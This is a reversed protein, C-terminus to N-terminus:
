SVNVNRRILAKYFIVNVAMTMLIILIAIVSGVSYKGGQIVDFMVLTAVKQGPYVLFIISGVTTMTATFGNAFSVFLSNKSMPMVVDKIVDFDTGGLDKVSNITESSIQNSAEIGIKSSFPLQKFLMNLVVITATGTLFFPAGRFALIYGIGFFSGPIIYPMMAVFDILGMFRLKRIELYYGMLIGLVAGCLGSILSYVASRVFVGSIHARADVFNQLTFYSVGMQKKTFASLFISAYQLLILLIFTISVLKMISYLIGSKSLIDEEIEGSENMDTNKINKRYIIFVLLAPIFLVVNIVSARTIDGYAVMSMYAETAMTNFNGGIIAPTTFDALSRVFTLLAIILITSKLMPIVIDKIVSTTDAGLDRASYIIKSNIRSLTGTVVLCNLSIFGLSQMLVIGWMGYTNVTLGLIDHTIFGRRGFLTIYSLSTVFPPSIMTLMMILNIAKRTRRGSVLYFVGVCVATATSIITSLVATKLSNTLLKIDNTLFNNLMSINFSGDVFLARYFVCLFPYLIFLLITIYIIAILLRDLLKKVRKM